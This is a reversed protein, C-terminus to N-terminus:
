SPLAIGYKNAIWTTIAARDTPWNTANNIQYCLIACIRLPSFNGTGDQFLYVVGDNSIDVVVGGDDSTRHTGDGNIYVGLTAYDLFELVAVHWADEDDTLSYALGQYNGSEKDTIYLIGNFITWGSLHDPWAQAIYINNRPGLEPVVWYGVYVAAFSHPNSGFNSAQMYDDIGDGEVYSRGGSVRFTPRASGTQTFDNHNGSQDAWTAVPDGDALGLADAQLNLLLTASAVQPLVPGAPSAASVKGGRGRVAAVPYPM